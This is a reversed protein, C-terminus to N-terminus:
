DTGAHKGMPSPSGEQEGSKGGADEEPESNEGPVLDLDPTVRLLEPGMGKRRVRFRRDGLVIQTIHASILALSRFLTTYPFLTSRPPRRIMLFFLFSAEAIWGTGAALM